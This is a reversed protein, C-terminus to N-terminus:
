GHGVPSVRIEQYKSVGNANVQEVYPAEKSAKSQELCMGTGPGKYKGRGAISKGEGGEPSWELAM